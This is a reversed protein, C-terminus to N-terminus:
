EPFLQRTNYCGVLNKYSLVSCNEHTKIGWLGPSSLSIAALKQAVATTLQDRYKLMTDDTRADNMMQLCESQSFHCPKYHQLVAVDPDVHHLKMTNNVFGWCYHNHMNVCARADIVSKAAYGPPGIAAQLLCVVVTTNDPREPFTVVRFSVLFNDPISQLEQSWNATTMQHERWGRETSLSWHSGGASFGRQYEVFVARCLVICSCSCCCFCCFDTM